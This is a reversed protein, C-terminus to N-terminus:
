RYLWAGVMRTLLPMILYSMLGVLVIVSFSVALLPCDPLAAQFAPPIVHVPVLLGVLTLLAMKHRKPPACGTQDRM